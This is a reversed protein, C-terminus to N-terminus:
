MFPMCLEKYAEDLVDFLTLVDTRYMDPRITVIQKFFHGCDHGPPLCSLNKGPYTRLVWLTQLQGSFPAVFFSFVNASHHQHESALDAHPSSGKWLKPHALTETIDAAPFAM